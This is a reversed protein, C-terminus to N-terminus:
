TTPYFATLHSILFTGIVGGIAILVVTVVKSYEPKVGLDFLIIRAGGLIHYFLAGLVLVEILIALSRLLMDM